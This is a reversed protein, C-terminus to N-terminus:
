RRSGFTGPKPMSVVASLIPSPRAAAVAAANAAWPTILANRRPSSDSPAFSSQPIALITTSGIVLISPCRRISASTFSPLTVSAQLLLVMNRPISVMRLFRSGRSAQYKVWRKQPTQVVTCEMAEMRATSFARLM